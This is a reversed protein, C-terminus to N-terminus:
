ADAPLNIALVALYIRRSDDQPHQFLYRFHAEGKHELERVFRAHDAIVRQITKLVKTHDRNRNFIILATKTDSWCSYSFLQDIAELLKREGHWIKCEGIFVNRERVRVLIDTKGSGNFTEGTAGGQYHGNLSILILNRLAEEGMQLFTSPSREISITIDSIVQLIHDYEALEIAPDPRASEPRVESPLIPNSRQKRPLQIAAIEQSPRRVPVGISELAKANAVLRRKRESLATEISSPLARLWNGVQDRVYGLYEEIRSLDDEWRQSFDDLDVRQVRYALVLETSGIRARLRPTICYDPTWRFLDAEGGFPVHFVIRVGKTTPPRGGLLPSNWDYRSDGTVDIDIEEGEERYIKEKLIKPVDISYKEILDARLACEDHNLLYDHDLQDVERVLEDHMHDLSKRLSDKSFLREEGVAPM